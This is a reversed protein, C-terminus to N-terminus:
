LGTKKALVDNAWEMAEQQAFHILMYIPYWLSEFRKYTPFVQGVEKAARYVCDDIDVTAESPSEESWREDMLECIDDWMDLSRKIITAVVIAEDTTFITQKNFIPTMDM